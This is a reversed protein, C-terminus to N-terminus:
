EVVDFLIVLMHEFIEPKETTEGEYVNFSAYSVARGQGPETIQLSAVDCSLM